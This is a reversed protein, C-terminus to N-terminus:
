KTLNRAVMVGSLAIIGIGLPSTFFDVFVNNKADKPIEKIADKKAKIYTLCSNSIVFPYLYAPSYFAGTTERISSPSSGDRLGWFADVKQMMSESAGDWNSPNSSAFDEVEDRLEELWERHDGLTKYDNLCMDRKNLVSATIVGGPLMLRGLIFPVLKDRIPKALEDTEKIAQDIAEVTPAPFYLWVQKGGRQGEVLFRRYDAVVSGIDTQPPLEWKGDSM